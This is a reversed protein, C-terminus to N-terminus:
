DKLIKKVLDLGHSLNNNIRKTEAESSKEEVLKYIENAASDPITICEGIPTGGYILRINYSHEYSFDESYNKNFQITLNPNGSFKGVYTFSEKKWESIKEILTLAEEQKLKRKNKM